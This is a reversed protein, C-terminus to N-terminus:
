NMMPHCLMAGGREHSGHSHKQSIITGIVIPIIADGHCTVDCVDSLNEFCRPGEFLRAARRAVVRQSRSLVMPM